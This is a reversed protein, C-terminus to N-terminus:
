VRRRRRVYGGAIPVVLLFWPSSRGNSQCGCGEPEADIPAGGSSEDDGSEEGDDDSEDSPGEDTTTGDVSGTTEDPLERVEITIAESLGRNPGDRVVVGFEYEDGSEPMPIGNVEWEFPPEWIKFLPEGDLYLEAETIGRDDQADITVVFSDGPEFVDGDAPYTISVTPPVTDLPYPEDACDLSGINGDVIEPETGDHCTPSGTGGGPFTVQIVAHTDLEELITFSVVGQPDDYADGEHMQRNTGASLIYVNPTYDFDNSEHLLVGNVGNLADVGLPRRYELYYHRDERYSPFRLAQTGNCPLETPLLHYIGDSTTTVINCGEIWGMFGKQVVNMHACGGGMPDFPDGYEVHECNESLPTPMGMEDVCNYSHSHALGYNHGIEQARVVCQFNGNYWSDRGPNERNGSVGLGGWGCGLGGPFYWMFQIFEGPDHGKELMAELGKERIEDSYCDLPKEIEYPGFVDGAIKEMGYSNEGYFVNTSKADIFMANKASENDYGPMGPWTLLVTAIRRHPRITPDILPEPPPFLMELEDTAFTRPDVADGYARVFSDYELADWAAIQEADDSVLEFVGADTRVHYSRHETGDFMSAVRMEFKGEIAPVDSLQGSRGLLADGDGPQCAALTTGLVLGLVPIAGRTVFRIRM